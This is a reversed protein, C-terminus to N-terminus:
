VRSDETNEVIQNFNQESKGFKILFHQEDSVVGAFYM